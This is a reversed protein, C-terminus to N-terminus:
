FENQSVIVEPLSPQLGTDIVSYILYMLILANTIVWFNGYGTVGFREVVLWCAITRVLTISGLTVVVKKLGWRAQFLDLFLSCVGFLLYGWALLLGDGLMPIKTGALVPAALLVLISSVVILATGGVRIRRDPDPISLNSPQGPRDGSMRRLIRILVVATVSNMLPMLFREMLVRRSAWQIYHTQALAVKGIQWDIAITGSFFLSISGYKLMTTRSFPYLHDRPSELDKHVSFMTYALIAWLLMAELAFSKDLGGSNLALRIGISVPIVLIVAILIQAFQRKEGSIGSWLLLAAVLGHMSLFGSAILIRGPQDLAPIDPVAVAIGLLTIAGGGLVWARLITLDLRISQAQIVRRSLIAAIAGLLPTVVVMALSLDQGVDALDVRSLQFKRALLVSALLFYGAGRSAVVTLFDAASRPTKESM